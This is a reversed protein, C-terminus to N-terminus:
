LRDRHGRRAPADVDGVNLIRNLGGDACVCQRLHLLALRAVVHSKAVLLRIAIRAFGDFVDAQKRGRALADRQRLQGIDRGVIAGFLDIAFAALAVDGDLVGDRARGPNWRRLLWRCPPRAIHLQWGAIVQFPGAFVGALLAGVLAHGDHNGDGHKAIKRM